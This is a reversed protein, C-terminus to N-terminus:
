TDIAVTMSEGPTLWTKTGSIRRYEPVPQDAAYGSRERQFWDRSDQRGALDCAFQCRRFVLECDAGPASLDRLVSRFLELAEQQPTTAM